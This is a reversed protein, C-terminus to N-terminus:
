FPFNLYPLLRSVCVSPPFFFHKCLNSATEAALSTRGLLYYIELKSSCWQSQRTRLTVKGVQKNILGEDTKNTTIFSLTVGGADLAERGLSSVSVAATKEAVTSLGERRGRPLYKCFTSGLDIDWEVFILRLVLSPQNGCGLPGFDGGPYKIQM